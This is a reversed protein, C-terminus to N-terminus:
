KKYDEGSLHDFRTDEGDMNGEPDPDLEDLIVSRMGFFAIRLLTLVAQQNKMDAALLPGDIFKLLDVLIAQGRGSQNLQKIAAKVEKKAQDRNM